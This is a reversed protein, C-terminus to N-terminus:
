RAPPARAQAFGVPRSAFHVVIAAVSESVTPTAVAAISPAPADILGGFGTCFECSYHTDVSQTPAHSHGAYALTGLAFCLVLVRM